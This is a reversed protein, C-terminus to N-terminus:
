IAREGFAGHQEEHVGHKEPRTELRRPLFWPSWKETTAVRPESVNSRILEACAGRAECQLRWLARPAPSSRRARSRLGHVRVLWLASLACLACLPLFFTKLFM